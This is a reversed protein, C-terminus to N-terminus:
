IRIVIIKYKLHRQSITGLVMKRLVMAFDEMTPFCEDYFIGRLHKSYPNRSRHSSDRNQLHDMNFASIARAIPNRVTFLFSTANHRIFEKDGKRLSIHITRKVLHTIVPAITPLNQNCAHRPSPDKYWECNSKFIKDLTIGGTKGVHVYLITLDYERSPLLDLFSVKSREIEQHTTIYETEERKLYPVV